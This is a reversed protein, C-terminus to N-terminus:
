YVHISRHHSARSLIPSVPVVDRDHGRLMGSCLMSGACRQKHGWWHRHVILRRQMAERRAIRHLQNVRWCLVGYVFVLTVILLLLLMTCTTSWSRVILRAHM